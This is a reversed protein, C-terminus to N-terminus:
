NKPLSIEVVLIEINNNSNNILSHSSARNVIIDFPKIPIKKEGITMEGNGSLIFYIEESDNHFHIGISSGPPVIAKDIFNISSLKYSDIIRAWKIFGEGDHAKIVQEELDCYNAKVNDM